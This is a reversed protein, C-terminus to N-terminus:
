TTVSPDNNICIYLKQAWDTWTKFNSGIKGNTVQMPDPIGFQAFLPNASVAAGWKFWENEEQMIPLHAEPFTEHFRDAFNRFTIYTADPYIPISKSM